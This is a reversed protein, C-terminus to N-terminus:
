RDTVEEVYSVGASGDIRRWRETLRIRGDPLVTPSSVCSGAVTRGDTTVWCYAAEIVGDPGCHGVLRGAQVSAGAFEAWVLRGDQHYVGTPVTTGPPFQDREAPQFRRGQYNIRTATTM